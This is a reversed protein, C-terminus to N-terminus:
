VFACIRSKCDILVGWPEELDSSSDILAAFDYELNYYREHSVKGGLSTLEKLAFIPQDPLGVRSGDYMAMVPRELQSIPQLQSSRGLEYGFYGTLQTRYGTMVSVLTAFFIVYVCTFAQMALRWSGSRVKARWGIKHSSWHQYMGHIMHGVSVTQVQQCYISAVTPIAVACNEMTLTLSRRLTRYAMMAALAQGGRGIIADWGADIVKVTTFSFRGFAINITFFLGPDWFPMYDYDTRETNGDANCFFLGDENSGPYPDYTTFFASTFTVALVLLVLPQWSDHIYRRAGDRPINWSRLWHFMRSMLNAMIDYFHTATHIFSIVGHKGSPISLLAISRLRTQRKSVIRCVYMCTASM